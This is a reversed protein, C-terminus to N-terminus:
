RRKPQIPADAASYGKISNESIIVEKYKPYKKKVRKYPFNEINLNSFTFLFIL